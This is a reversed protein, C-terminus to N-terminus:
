RLFLQVEPTEAAMTTASSVAVRDIPLGMQTLTRLVDEAARKAETAQLAVQAANGGSPSVAVLEFTAQPFRDLAEAVAQYVAQEFNVNPRDFRIVVLPRQQGAVGPLSGPREFGGSLATSPTFLARNALSQGYLQGNNIALALTQLNRRESAVYTSQRNIDESMENLLRDIRVVSRNIEDELIALEAHDEEVAGTLSYAARVQETLFAAISAARAIETALGNLQGVNQALAELQMQAQDWQAVLRPNGPTSGAQLRASIAAILSFYDAALQQSNIRIDQLLFAQNEVDQQLDILEDRMEAIRQSVVTGSQAEIDTLSFATTISDDIRTRPGEIRDTMATVRSGNIAGNSGDNGFLTPGSACGGLAVLLGAALFASHRIPKM